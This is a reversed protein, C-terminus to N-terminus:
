VGLLHKFDDFLKQSVKSTEQSKIESAIRETEKLLLKSKNIEEQRINEVERTKVLSAEQRASEIADEAEERSNALIKDADAKAKALRKEINAEVEAIKKIEGTELDNGTNQTNTEHM